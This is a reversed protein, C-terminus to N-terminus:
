LLCQRYIKCVSIIVLFVNMVYIVCFFGLLLFYFCGSLSVINKRTIENIYPVFTIYCVTLMWRDIVVFGSILTKSTTM